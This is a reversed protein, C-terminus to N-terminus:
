KPQEQQSMDIVFDFTIGEFHKIANDVICDICDIDTCGECKARFGNPSILWEVLEEKNIYEAM